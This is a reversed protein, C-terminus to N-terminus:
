GLSGARQARPRAVNRDNASPPQPCFPGNTSGADAAEADAAAEPARHAGGDGQGAGLTQLMGLYDSTKFKAATILAKCTVKNLAYELEALRYAPNINVLILGIRATAFQTVLWEWRNPSWIGIREGTRLGLALLGAALQDVTEAFEDWTFRKDQEVFVAAERSGNIAVARALLQPITLELLPRSTDGVVHSKGGVPKLSHSQM